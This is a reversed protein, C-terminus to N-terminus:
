ISGEVEELASGVRISVDMCKTRLNWFKWLRLLEEADGERTERIQRFSHKWASTVVDASHKDAAKKILEANAPTMKVERYSKIVGKEKLYDGILGRAANFTGLMETVEATEHRPKKPKVEVPAQEILSIQTPAKVEDVKM